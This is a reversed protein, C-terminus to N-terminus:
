RGPYGEGVEGELTTDIYLEDLLRRYDAVMNEIQVRKIGTFPELQAFRSLCGKNEYRELAEMGIDHLQNNQEECIAIRSEHGEAITQWNDRDAQMERLTVVAERYRELLENLRENLLETRERFQENADELGGIRRADVQAQRALKDREATVTELEATAATLESSTTDLESTLRAREASLRQLQVQLRQIAAAADAGARAEEAVALPATIVTVAVM